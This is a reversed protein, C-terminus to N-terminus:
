NNRLFVETLCRFCCPFWLFLLYLLVSPWSAFHPHFHWFFLFFLLGTPLCYVFCASKSCLHNFDKQYSALEFHTPTQIVTELSLCNLVYDTFQLYVGLNQQCIILCLPWFLIWINPSHKDYCDHFHSVCIDKRQQLEINKKENTIQNVFSCISWTSAKSISCSM